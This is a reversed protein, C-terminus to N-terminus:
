NTSDPASQDLHRLLEIRNQMLNEHGMMESPDMMDMNDMMPEEFLELDDSFPDNFMFADAMPGMEDLDEFGPDNDLAEGVTPGEDMTPGVGVRPRTGMRMGQRMGRMRIMIRAAAMRPDELIKKWIKQQDPTLIKNVAFWGDLFNKQLEGRLKAIQDLTATLADRDPNDAAALKEYDVRAHQMQARIDIRKEMQDLRIKQIDAKQQDTLKLKGPLAQSRWMQMPRKQVQRQAQPQQAVASSAAVIFVVAMAILKTRM